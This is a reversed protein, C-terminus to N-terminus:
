DTAIAAAIVSFSDYLDISFEDVKLELQSMDMGRSSVKDGSFLSEFNCTRSLEAVSFRYIGIWGRSSFRGEVHYTILVTGFIGDIEATATQNLLLSGNQDVNGISRSASIITIGPTVASTGTNISEIESDNQVIDITLAVAPNIGTAGDTCAFIFDGTNFSYRGAVQPFGASNTELPPVNTDDSCGNLVTFVLLIPLLQVFHM